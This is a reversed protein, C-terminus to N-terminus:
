AGEKESVAPSDHGADDDDANSQAGAAREAGAKTANSGADEAEDLPERAVLTIEFNLPMGAMPHNLDFVTVGDDQVSIVRALQQYGEGNMLYIMQGPILDEYNPIEVTNAQVILDSRREGYAERPDLHVKKTEGPQMGMVAMEFGPVVEHNGEVFTLPARGETTDFVDGDDFSGTYHVTVKNKLSLM